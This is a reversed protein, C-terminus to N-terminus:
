VQKIEGDFDMSDNFVFDQISDLSSISSNRSCTKVLPFCKQFTSFNSLCCSCHQLPIQKRGCNNSVLCFRKMNSQSYFLPFSCVTSLSKVQSVTMWKYPPKPLICFNMENLAISPREANLLWFLRDLVLCCVIEM